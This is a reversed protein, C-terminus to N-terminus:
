SSCSHRRNDQDSETGNQGSPDLGAKKCIDRLALIVDTALSRDLFRIDDVKGIRKIIKRLSGEDKARSALEWLGKIYYLQRSTAMGKEEPLLPMKKSTKRKFGLIKFAVMISEFQSVSDIESASEIGASGVLLSQYALDDLGLEKKAIHIIALKERRGVLM